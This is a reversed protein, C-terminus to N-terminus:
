AAAQRDAQQALSDIATTLRAAHSPACRAPQDLLWDVLSNGALFLCHGHSAHTQAFPSWIVVVAQVYETFRTTERLWGRLEMARGTTTPALHQASCEDDALRRRVRVGDQDVCLEGRLLKSDLVFLGAPGLVIHDFNGYTAPVDHWVRWGDPLARLARATRTEGEFGRNWNEIYDPPTDRVWLWLTIASGFLVGAFWQLWHPSATGLYAGLTVAPSLAALVRVRLHARWRRLGRRYQRRAYDGARSAREQQGM